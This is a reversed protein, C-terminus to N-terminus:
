NSGNGFLDFIIDIRKSNNIILKDLSSLKAHITELYKKIDRFDNNGSNLNQKENPISQDFLQAFTQNPTVRNFVAEKNKALKNKIPNKKLNISSKLRQFEPCGKFSAPHGFTKCLVCYLKDRSDIQNEVKCEGPGHEVNCKVCRYNLKCNLAVHGFRQCNKCQLINNKKLKEWAIVQNNLYKIKYLDAVNSNPSIQVLFIPLVRKENKSKTTSFRSVKKFEVTNCNLENLFKLVNGDSEDCYLGKLIFSKNKEIYPTYSFYNAEILNLGDKVKYFNELSMVYIAHKNGSLKKIYFENRNINLKDILIKIIDNPDQGFVYIPPLRSSKDRVFNHNFLINTDKGIEKTIKPANYSSPNEECIIEELPNFNKKSKLQKKEKNKKKIVNIFEELENNNDQAPSDDIDFEFSGLIDYHNQSTSPIEAKLNETSNSSVNIVQINRIKEKLIKIENKLDENEKELNKKIKPKTMKAISQTKNYKRKQLTSSLCNYNKIAFDNIDDILNVNNLLNQINNTM